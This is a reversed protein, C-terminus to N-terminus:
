RRLAKFYEVIEKAQQFLQIMDGKTKEEKTFRV